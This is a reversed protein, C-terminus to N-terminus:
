AIIEAVMGENFQIPIIREKRSPKRYNPVYNNVVKSKKKPTPKTGAARIAQKRAVLDPHKEELYKKFLEQEENKQRIPKYGLHPFNHKPQRKKKRTTVRPIPRQHAKLHCPGCLTVLDEITEMERTNRYRIHHAQLPQQKTGCKTCTFRDRKLCALRKAKWAPTKLYEAYEEKTMAVRRKPVNMVEEPVLNQGLRKRLLRVAKVM